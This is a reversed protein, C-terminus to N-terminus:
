NANLPNKSSTNRGTMWEPELWSTCCRVVRPHDCLALCHVERMVQSLSEKSYGSADFPIRKVAYNRNDLKNRASFVERFSGSGLLGLQQFEQQYRSLSLPHGDVSWSLEHQNQLQM